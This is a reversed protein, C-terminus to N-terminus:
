ISQRHRRSGNNCRSYFLFAHGCVARPKLLADLSPRYGIIIEDGLTKVMKFVGKGFGTDKKCGGVKVPVQIPIM